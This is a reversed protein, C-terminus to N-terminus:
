HPEHERDAGVILRSQPHRARWDGWTTLTLRGVRPLTTGRRPGAVACLGDDQDVWLSETSRDYLVPRADHFYGTLGMRLRAGNVVPTYVNVRDTRPSFPSYAVLFPQGAIEDNVVTVKDLLLLPYVTTVGGLEDGAVDATEPIRGWIQGGGVEVIPQDIAQTVDRGMPESLRTLDLEGRGIRFWTHGQGNIWGAWLLTQEGEDHCWDPPKQAYSPRVHINYYGIVAARKVDKLDHQLAAWEQWLANGQFAVFLLLLTLITFAAPRPLAHKAPVTPASAPVEASVLRDASAM